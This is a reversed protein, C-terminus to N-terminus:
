EKWVRLEELVNGRVIGETDFGKRGDSIYFWGSMGGFSYGM